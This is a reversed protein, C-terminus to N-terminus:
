RRKGGEEGQILEASHIIAELIALFVRYVLLVAVIGFMYAVNVILSLAPSRRDEALMCEM